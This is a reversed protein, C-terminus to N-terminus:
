CRQFTGVDCQVYRQEIACNTPVMALFEDLTHKRNSRNAMFEKVRCMLDEFKECMFLNKSLKEALSGKAYARTRHENKGFCINIQKFNRLSRILESDFPSLFLIARLDNEAYILGFFMFGLDCVQKELYTKSKHFSPVRSQGNHLLGLNSRTVQVGIFSTETASDVYADPAGCELDQSMDVLKLGHAQFMMLLDKISKAERDLMSGVGKWDNSKRLHMAKLELRTLHRTHGTVFMWVCASHIAGDLNKMSIQISSPPIKGRNRLLGLYEAETTVMILTPSVEAIAAKVLSFNMYVPKKKRGM